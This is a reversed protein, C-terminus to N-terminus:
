GGCRRCIYSQQFDMCTSDSQYSMPPYCGGFEREGLATVAEETVIQGCQKCRVTDSTSELTDTGSGKGVVNGAPRGRMSVANNVADFELWDCPYTPGSFSAAICFDKWYKGAGSDVLGLLGYNEWSGVIDHVDPWNMAGDVRCIHDDYWVMDTMAGWSQKFFEFGGQEGFVEEITRNPVILNIFELKIAM